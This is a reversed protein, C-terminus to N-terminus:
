RVADKLAREILAADKSPDLKEATVKETAALVLDATEKRLAARAATVDNALSSRAESVIHEARTEARKEAAAVMDASEKHATDIIDEVQKRAETLHKEAEKSAAEAKKEAERSAKAGADLQEQRKDISRILVPYVFKGLVAVLVLFAIAQLILLRWDIGLAQLLGQEAGAGETAALVTLNTIHM